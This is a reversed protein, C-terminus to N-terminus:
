DENRPDTSDQLKSGTSGSPSTATGRTTIEIPTPWAFGRRFRPLRSPRHRVAWGAVGFVLLGTLLSGMLAWPGWFGQAAAWRLPRLIWESGSGVPERQAADLVQRLSPVAVLIAVGTALLTIWWSRRSAKAASVTSHAMGSLNLASEITSRMKEAGLQTLVHAVIDRAEGARIDGQRLESFLVIADRYRKRLKREDLSMRAVDREMAQLRMYILLAYEFVFVTYLEDMGAPPEGEWQFYAANGLTAFLSHDARISLDKPPEVHEAIRRGGRARWAIRHVDVSHELRWRSRACCGGPVVIAVPYVVWAHHRAHIVAMIANLHAMLVDTMSAPFEHDILGLPMGADPEDAFERVLQAWGSGALLPTSMKSRVVRPESAWMMEIVQETDLPGEVDIRLNLQLIGSEHMLLRPELVVGRTDSSGPVAIEHYSNRLKLRVFRDEDRDRGGFLIADSAREVASILQQDLILGEAEDLSSLPNSGEKDGEDEDLENEQPEPQEATTGAADDRGPGIRVNPLVRRLGVIPHKLVFRALESITQKALLADLDAVVKPAWLARLHRAGLRPHRMAFAIGASWTRETDARKVDAYLTRVRRISRALSRMRKSVRIAAESPWAASDALESDLLRRSGTVINIGRPVETTLVFHIAM